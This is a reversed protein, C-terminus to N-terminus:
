TRRERQPEVGRLRIPFQHGARPGSPRRTRPERRPFRRRRRCVSRCPISSRHPPTSKANETSAPDSGPMKITTTSCRAICVSSASARISTARPIFPRFRVNMAAASAPVAANGTAGCGTSCVSARRSRWPRASRVFTAAFLASSSFARPSWRAPMLVFPWQRAFDPIDRDQFARGRVAARGPRPREAFHRVAGPLHHIQASDPASARQLINEASARQPARRSPHDTGALCPFPSLWACDPLPNWFLLSAAAAFWLIFILPAMWFITGALFNTRLAGFFAFVNVVSLQAQALWGITFLTFTSFASAYGPM